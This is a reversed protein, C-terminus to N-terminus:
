PKPWVNDEYVGNEALNIARRAMMATADKRDISGPRSDGPIQGASPSTDFSLKWTIQKCAELLAPAAALLRANAEQEEDPVIHDKRTYCVRAVPGAPSLIVYDGAFDVIAYSWPEDTRKEILM